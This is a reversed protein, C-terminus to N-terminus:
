IIFSRSNGYVISIKDWLAVTRWLMLYGHVCVSLDPVLGLAQIKEMLNGYM